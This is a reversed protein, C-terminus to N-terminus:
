RGAEGLLAGVEQATTRRPDVDGVFRGDSIVLVRDAIDFLDELDPSILVVGSGGDRAALLRQRVDGTAGIDLGRYPNHAVILDPRRELERAVVLRQQNGGSLSSVSSDMSAAQVAGASVIRAVFEGVLTPALQGSRRLSPDRHRHVIANDAVSLTPALADISRDEPIYAVTPPRLVIDGAEPEILGCLLEALVEQGNGSIGAIGVVEHARVELDIDFLSRGTESAAVGVGKLALVPNGPDLRSVESQKPLQGIMAQTLDDADLAEGAFETVVRGRRMVTVRDAFAMVEPLKHTIYVVSRGQGTLQRLVRELVAVEASGLAATPEDLVLVDAGTALAILIELRQREGVTLESIPCDLDVDLELEAGTRQLKRRARDVHLWAGLRPHGLLYNEVGGIEEILGFHQQVFGIGRRAGDMRGRLQVTEGDIEIAGADPRLIGALMRMLTTKGAGNEGLLAHIEGARIDLDADLVAQTAGFAKSIGRLRARIRASGSEHSADDSGPQRSSAEM